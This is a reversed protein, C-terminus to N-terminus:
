WKKLLKQDKLLEITRELPILLYNRLYVAVAQVGPGYQAKHTVGDSFVAKTIKHCNPCEKIESQYETTFAKVPPIDTV